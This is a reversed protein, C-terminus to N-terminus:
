AWRGVKLKGVWTKGVRREEWRIPTGGIRYIAKSMVMGAFPQSVIFVSAMAWSPRPLGISFAIFLALLAAGFAKVAFVYNQASPMAESRKRKSRDAGQPSPRSRRWCPSVRRWNLM